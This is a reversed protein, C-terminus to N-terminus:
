QEVEPKQVAYNQNEVAIAPRDIGGANTSSAQPGWTGFRLLKGRTAAAAGLEPMKRSASLSVSELLRLSHLIQKEQQLDTRRKAELVYPQHQLRHISHVGKGTFLILVGCNSTQVTYIKPIRGQVCKVKINNQFGTM